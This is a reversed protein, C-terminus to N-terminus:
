FLFKLGLQIKRPGGTGVISAGWEWNGVSYLEYRSMDGFTGQAPPVFPSNTDPTSTATGFTSPAIVSSGRYTACFLASVLHEQGNAASVRKRVAGIVMGSYRM